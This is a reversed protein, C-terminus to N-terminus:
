QKPIFKSVDAKVYGVPKRIKGNEDKIVTFEYEMNNEATVKVGQEAYFDVTEQVLCPDDFSIFKELNNEGVHILANEVDYGKKELMKLFGTVTVFNDVAEKLIQAEGEELTLADWLELAEEKNVRAQSLLEETTINKFNGGIENFDEILDIADMYKTNVNNEM